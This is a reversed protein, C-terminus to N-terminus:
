KTIFPIIKGAISVIDQCDPLTGVGLNSVDEKFSKKDDKYTDIKNCSDIDNNKSYKRNTHNDISNYKRYINYFIIALIGLVVVYMLIISSVIILQSSTESVSTTLIVPM